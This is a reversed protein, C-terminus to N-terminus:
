FTDSKLAFGYEPNWIKKVMLDWKGKGKDYIHLDGDHSGVILINSSKIGPKTRYFADPRLLESQKKLAKSSPNFLICDDKEAEKVVGGFLLIGEPIHMVGTFFRRNLLGDGSSIKVKEWTKASTKAIELCEILDSAKDPGDIAGGFSYLVKQNWSSLSVWKKKENLQAIEKWKNADIAYEECSSLSGTANTGGVVYLLNKTGAIMAHNARPTNMSALKDVVMEMSAKITVKMVIQYYQDKSPDAGPLGGGTFYIVDKLQVTDFLYTSDYPVTYKRTQIEKIDKITCYIFQKTRPDDSYHMSEDEAEM